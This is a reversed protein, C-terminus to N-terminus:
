IPRERKPTRKFSERRGFLTAIMPMTNALSLYLILPPLTVLTVGYRLLGGRKLARYSPLTMAICLIPILAAIIALMVAAFAPLRGELRWDAALALLVISVLPFAAQYLILFAAGLKKGMGWDADAVAALLKGANQMFGTAWRRQQVRWHRVQEPVLGGVAPEMAFLGRWGAIEARLTLDLDEALTDDSWGGAAEIATRRWVGATGNFQFLLGARARVNQEMVFHADFLLGQARTLWNANWNTFECRSQVFASHPAALLRPMVRRLWDAPPRFDADLVAVFPAHSRALGAALAGAKFGQRHDRRLHVINLGERRLQAVLPAAVESTGDFSDDLLQVELRGQPWDLAAVGRLLGAIVEPENFVALQVLVDPLTDDPPLSPPAPQPLRSQALFMLPLSLFGIGVLLLGSLGLALLLNLGAIVFTM